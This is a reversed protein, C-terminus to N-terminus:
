QRLYTYLIVTIYTNSAHDFMNHYTYIFRITTTSYQQKKGLHATSLVRYIDYGTEPTLLIHHNDKTNTLIRKHHLRFTISSSGTGVRYFIVHYQLKIFYWAIDSRSILVGLFKSTYSLFLVTFLQITKFSESPNIKYVIIINKNM